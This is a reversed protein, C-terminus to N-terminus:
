ECDSGRRVDIADNKHLAILANVYDLAIESNKALLDRISDSLFVGPYQPTENLARFAATSVLFGRMANPGNSYAYIYEIRFAPATMDKAAYYHRVLDM